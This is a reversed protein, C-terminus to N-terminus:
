SDVDMPSGGDASTSSVGSDSRISSRISNTGSPMFESMDVGSHDLGVGDEDLPGEAELVQDDIRM